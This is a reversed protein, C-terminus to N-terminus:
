EESLPKRPKRKSFTLLKQFERFNKSAFWKGKLIEGSEKGKENSTENARQMAVNM